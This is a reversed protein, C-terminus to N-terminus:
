RRAVAVGAAVACGVVVAVVIYMLMEDDIPLGLSMANMLLKSDGSMRSYVFYEQDRGLTFTRSENPGLIIVNESIKPWNVTSAQGEVRRQVTFNELLPMDTNNSLTVVWENDLNEVTITSPNEVVSIETQGVIRSTLSPTGVTTGAPGLANVKVSSGSMNDATAIKNGSGLDFGTLDVQLWGYSEGLWVEAWAHETLEAGQQTDEVLYGIRHRAPIGVARCFSIFLTAFEDCVGARNGMIESDTCRVPGYAENYTIEKKIWNSFSELISVVDGGAENKLENAKAVVSGSLTAYSDADVWEEMGSLSELSLVPLPSTNRSDVTVTFTASYEFTGPISVGNEEILWIERGEVMAIEGASVGAEVSQYDTELPVGYAKITINGSGATSSTLEVEVTTSLTYTVAERVETATSMQVAALQVMSVILLAFLAMAIRRM